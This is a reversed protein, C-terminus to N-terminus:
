ADAFRHIDAQLIHFTYQLRFPCMKPPLLIQVCRLFDHLHHSAVSESMGRISWQTLRSIPLETDALRIQLAVTMTDPPNDYPNQAPVRSARSDFILFLNFSILIIPAGHSPRLIKNM